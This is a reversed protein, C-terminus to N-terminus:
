IGPGGPIFWGRLLYVFGLLVSLPIVWSWDPQIRAAWRDPIVLALASMAAGGLASSLLWGYWYMAPGTKPPAALFEVQNLAPHYTILALNYYMSILYIVAFTASFVPLVRHFSV